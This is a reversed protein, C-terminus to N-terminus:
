GKFRMSSFGHELGVGGEEQIGGARDVHAGALGEAEDVIGDGAFAMALVRHEGAGTEFPRDAVAEMGHVPFVFFRAVLQEVAQEARFRLGAGQVGAGDAQAIGLEDGKRHTRHLLAIHVGGAGM